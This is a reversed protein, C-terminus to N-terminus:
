EVEMAPRVAPKDVMLYAALGALALPITTTARMLVAASAALSVTVGYGAFVTVLIADQSGIGFPLTSIIGAVQSTSNAAVAQTIPVRHALSLMVLWLQAGMAIFNVLTLGSTWALLLPAKMLKRVQDIMVTAGEQFRGMIRRKGLKALVWQELNTPMLEFLLPAFTLREFTVVAAGVRVPVGNSSRWLYARVYDGSAAPTITSSTQGVLQIPAMSRMPVSYGLQRVMLQARLARLWIVPLNLALAALILTIDAQQLSAWIRDPHSIAIM